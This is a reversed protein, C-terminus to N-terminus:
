IVCRFCRAANPDIRDVDAPADTPSLDEM